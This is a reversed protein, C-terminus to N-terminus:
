HTIGPSFSPLHNESAFLPGENAIERLRDTQTITFVRGRGQRLVGRRRFETLTRSITHLTLGLHDALDTLPLPLRFETGLRRGALDLLFAAVRARAHRRSRIALVFYTQRLALSLLRIKRPADNEQGDSSSEHVMVSTAAEATLMQHDDILGIIDGPFAFGVIVRQGDALYLCLRVIGEEIRLLGHALDGPAYVVADKPLIRRRGSPHMMVM